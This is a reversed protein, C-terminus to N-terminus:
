HSLSAVEEFDDGLFRRVRPALRQCERWTSEAKRSDEDCGSDACFEGFSVEGALADSILCSLVDAAGPERMWGSGAYFNVTLSRRPRSRRLTVRYGHTGADFGEPIPKINAGYRADAKIGHAECWREM